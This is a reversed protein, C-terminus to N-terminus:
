PWVGMWNIYDMMDDSTIGMKNEQQLMVCYYFGYAIVDIAAAQSWTMGTVSGLRDHVYWSPYLNPDVPDHQRQCLM